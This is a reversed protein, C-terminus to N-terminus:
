ARNQDRDAKPKRPVKVPEPANLAAVDPKGAQLAAAQEKTM